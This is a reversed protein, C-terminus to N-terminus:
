TEYSSNRNSAVRPAARRSSTGYFEDQDRAWHRESFRWRSSARLDPQRVWGRIERVNIVGEGMLGRDLLLDATPVRWDCVHFAFLTGAEGSAKIQAELEPDWWM